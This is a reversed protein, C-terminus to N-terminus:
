GDNNVEVAETLWSIATSQDPLGSAIRKELTKASSTRFDNVLVRATDRIFYSMRSCFKMASQKGLTTMSIEVQATSVSPIVQEVLDRSILASVTNYYEEHLTALQRQAFLDAIDVNEQDYSRLIPELNPVVGLVARPQSAIFYFIMLKEAGISQEFAEEWVDLIMLLVGMSFSLYQDPPLPPRKSM